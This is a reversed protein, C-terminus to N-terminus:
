RGGKKKGANLGEALLDDLGAASAAKKASKSPGQAAAGGAAGGKPAVAAILSAAAAGAGPFCEELTKGAHKNCHANLESNTKTAKLENLCITCKLMIAAVKERAPRVGNADGIGAAINAKKARARESKHGEPM